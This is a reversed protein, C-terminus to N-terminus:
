IDRHIANLEDQSVAQSGAGTWNRVHRDTTRSWTRSSHFEAGSSIVRYAVPTRYSVLIVFYRTTIETQNAQACRGGMHGVLNCHQSVEADDPGTIRDNDAILIRARRISQSSRFDAVLRVFRRDAGRPPERMLLRGYAVIVTNPLPDRARNLASMYKLLADKDGSATWEREAERTRSDAELLHDWKKM